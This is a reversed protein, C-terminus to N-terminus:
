PATGADLQLRQCSHVPIRRNNGAIVRNFVTGSLLLLDSVELLLCGFSYMDSEETLPIVTDQNIAAQVEPALWLHAGRLKSTLGKKDNRVASLGFDSIM